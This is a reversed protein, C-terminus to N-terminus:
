GGLEATERRQLKELQKALTKIRRSVDGYKSSSWAALDQQCQTLLERTSELSPEGDIRRQGAHKVVAESNADLNWYAEFRFMRQRRYTFPKFRVWLPTHDYTRTPLIEVIANPFANCWGESALARDLREKIFNSSEQKNRWTFRVQLRMIGCSVVRWHLEFHLWRLRM